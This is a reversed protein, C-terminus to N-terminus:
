GARRVFHLLCPASSLSILVFPNPTAVGKEDTHM